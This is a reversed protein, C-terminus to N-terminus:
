SRPSRNVRSLDMICNTTGDSGWAGVIKLMDVPPRPAITSDKSSIGSMRPIYRDSSGATGASRAEVEVDTRQQRVHLYPVNHAAGCWRITTDGIEIYQDIVLSMYASQHVAVYVLNYIVEHTGIMSYALRVKVASREIRQVPIPRMLCQPDDNPCDLLVSAPM